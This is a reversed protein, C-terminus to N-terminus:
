ASSVTKFPLVQAVPELDLLQQTRTAAALDREAKAQARRMAAFRKAVDTSVSNTYKGGQLLRQSPETRKAPM